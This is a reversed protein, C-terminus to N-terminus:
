RNMLRQRAIEHYDARLEIGIYRRGLLKAALLVSGSGCFPDLVVEGPLSFARVLRRLALVPKQNPHLRNGTHKWTQVDSIPSLPREPRGKALLYAQEHRYELFASASAYSKVWVLHGVPRFGAARWANLYSEARSWGYFSICFRDSKLVRYVEAFAPRLWTDSIDGAITRGDRSRYNVLYPPDTVVLDISDAPFPRMAVCCDGLLVSDLSDLTPPGPCLKKRSLYM